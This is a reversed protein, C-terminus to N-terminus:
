KETWPSLTIRELPERTVRPRFPERTSLDYQDGSALFYFLGGSDLMRNSDFVAVYSKGETEAQRRWKGLMGPNIGLERAVQSITVGPEQTLRVAERKYESSYKRRRQM